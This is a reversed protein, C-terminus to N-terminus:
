REGPADGFRTFIMRGASTQIISTVTVKVTRGIQPKGNDVVVMTGDDLYGVGQGAEKGDKIVQIRMEEGPLVVPKLANALDNLNLVTVQQLGAVKNLNYDNTLICASLQQALRILKGDVEHVEPYDQETVRVTLDPHQQLQKLIDLGRRGRARRLNDASDAINQLERLIFRPVLLDGEIFRSKCVDIIRGDIIVSTDLVKPAIHDSDPHESLVPLLHCIEERKAAAVMAGCTLFLLHLLFWVAAPVPLFRIVSFLLLNSIILGIVGGTCRIIIDRVPLRRWCLMGGIALLLTAAAVLYGVLATNMTSM